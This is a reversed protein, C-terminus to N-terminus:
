TSSSPHKQIAAAASSYASEQMQQQPQTHQQQVAPGAAFSATMMHKVIVPPRLKAAQYEAVKRNYYMKDTEIVVLHAVQFWNCKGICMQSSQLQLLEPCNAGPARRLSLQQAASWFMLCVAFLEILSSICSCLCTILSRRGTQMSVRRLMGRIVPNNPKEVCTLRKRLGLSNLVKKHFWPKGIHSRRLTVFLTQIAEQVM